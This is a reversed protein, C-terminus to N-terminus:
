DTKHSLAKLIKQKLVSGDIPKIMFDTVKLKMAEVVVSKDPVGTIMIFPIGALREEARMKRLLELGNIGPMLWDAVVVDVPSANMIEWAEEGNGAQHIKGLGLPDLIGQIIGRIIPTDDVVLLSTESLTRRLRQIAAEDM